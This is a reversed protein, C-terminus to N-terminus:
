LLLFVAFPVFIAFPSVMDPCLPVILINFGESGQRSDGQRRDGTGQGRDEIGQGRGRQM